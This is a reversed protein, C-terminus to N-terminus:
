NEETTPYLSGNLSSRVDKQAGVALALVMPSTAFAVILIFTTM